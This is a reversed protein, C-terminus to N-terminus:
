KFVFFALAKSGGEPWCPWLSHEGFIPHKYRQKRKQLWQGLLTDLNVLHAELLHSFCITFVNPIAGQGRLRLWALLLARSFGWSGEEVGPQPWARSDVHASVQASGFPNHDSFVAESISYILPLQLPAKHELINFCREGDLPVKGLASNVAPM